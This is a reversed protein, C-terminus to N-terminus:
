PVSPSLATLRAIWQDIVALAQDDRVSTGLPPMQSSPRRSRMRLLIASEHPARSSVLVTPDTAGPRQWTTSRDVLARAVADGDRVLDVTRIALGPTAIEGSGDHCSGCNTMLYGLVARTDPDSARIRPRRDVLASDHGLRGESVLTSLSVMEPGAPEGHIAGPDRDVSLQLANFGLPRPQHNGHCAQCDSVSPIRYPRDLERAAPITMGSEPALVAETGTDNWVYSAFVWREASQKWIMRTETKRGNVRFEKWFRTGVPLVWDHENTADITSGSPLFVWRSKQAGDSWLPYQPAFARVESGGLGTDGLLRPPEPRELAVVLAPIIISVLWLTM